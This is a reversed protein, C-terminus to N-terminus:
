KKREAEAKINEFMSQLKLILFSRDINYKKEAKLINNFCKQAVTKITNDIEENLRDCIEQCTDENNCILEKKFFDGDAYEIPMCIDNDKKLCNDSIYEVPIYMGRDRLPYWYSKSM